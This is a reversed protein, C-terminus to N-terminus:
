NKDSTECRSVRSLYESSRITQRMFHGVESPISVIISEMLLKLAEVQAEKFSKMQVEMVDKFAIAESSYSTAPM